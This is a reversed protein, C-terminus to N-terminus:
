VRAIVVDEEDTEHTRNDKSYAKAIKDVIVELDDDVEEGQPNLFQGIAMSKLICNQWALNQVKKEIKRTM